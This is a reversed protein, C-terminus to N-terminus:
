YQLCWALNIFLFRIYYKHKPTHHGCPFYLWPFLFHLCPSISSLDVTINWSFLYPDWSPSYNPLCSIPFVKLSIHILHIKTPYLLSNFDSFSFSYNHSVSRDLMPLQNSWLTLQYWPFLSPSCRPVPSSIVPVGVANPKRPPESPLADAQLAPSGTEIGPDPLDGLSPFSLGSWYEQRSFGMSPPTHHAVTWPAAFLGDPSLSM